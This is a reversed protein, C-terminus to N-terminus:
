RGLAPNRKISETYNWLGNFISEGVQAVDTGSGDHNNGLATTRVPFQGMGFKATVFTVFHQM